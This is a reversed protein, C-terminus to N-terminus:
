DVPIIKSGGVAKQTRSYIYDEAWDRATVVVGASTRCDEWEKIEEVREGSEPDTYFLKFKM